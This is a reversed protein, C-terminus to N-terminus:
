SIKATVDMSEYNIIIDESDYWKYFQKLMRRVVLSTYKEETDVLTVLMQVDSLRTSVDVGRLAKSISNDLRELMLEREETNLEISKAFDITLLVMQVNQHNRTAYKEVFEYIDLFQQYEVKFAGTYEVNNQMLHVLKGLDFLEGDGVGYTTTEIRNHFSYKVKGNQRVYYLARDACRFLDNYDHGDYSSLAVGMSLSTYMLCQDDEIRSNYSYLISDLHRTVEDVRTVDKLFVIFEDSGLRCLFENKTHSKLIDAVAKLVHDGEMHGYRRNVKKLDDLDIIVLAGEGRKLYERIHKEGTERNWIGTLYDNEAEVRVNRIEDSFVRAMLMSSESLPNKVISDMTPNIRPNTTSNLDMEGYYIEKDFDNSNDSYIGRNKLFEDSKKDNINLANNGDMSMAINNDDISIASSNMVPGNMAADNMALSNLLGDKNATLAADGAIFDAKDQKIVNLKGEGIMRIALKAIYPDFQKGINEEIEHRVEDSSLHHRYHRNSTMADFADAVAIVRAILPIEDGKLGKPYGKGDYREHHYLAGIEVNKVTKIDKLIEAGITTHKKIEQYEQNTLRSPKNLIEHPIGIKGVDHLLGVCYVNKTEEENWGLEKAIRRAYEAVRTSHGVTYEEKSDIFNAVATIAQMTMNEMLLSKQSLEEELSSKVNKLQEFSQYEETRDNVFVVLCLLEGYDDLVPSASLDCVANNNRAILRYEPVKYGAIVSKVYNTADKKTIGFLSNFQVNEFPMSIGFFDMASNNAMDVHLNENLVLVPTKVNEFIYKAVNNQTLSFANHKIGIFYVMGMAVCVGICSAPFFPLNIMPLIIDISSLVLLQTEMIILIDIIKKQRIFKVKKRGNLMMTYLILANCIIYAIAYYRMWNVDLEFSTGYSTKIFHVSKPNCIFIASSIAWLLDIAWQIEFFRGFCDCYYAFFRVSMLIFFYVGIVGMCRSIYASISTNALILNGYGMCWLCSFLAMSFIIGREKLVLKIAKLMFFGIVLSLIGLLAFSGGLCLRISLM